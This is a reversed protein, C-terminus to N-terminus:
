RTGKKAPMNRRAQPTDVTRELFLKFLANTRQRQDRRRERPEKRRESRKPVFTKMPHPMRWIM